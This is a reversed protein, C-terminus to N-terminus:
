SFTHISQHWRYTCYRKKGDKKTTVRFNAVKARLNTTNYM